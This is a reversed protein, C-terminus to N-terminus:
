FTGARGMNTTVLWPPIALTFPEIFGSPLVSPIFNTGDM